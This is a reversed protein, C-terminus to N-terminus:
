FAQISALRQTERMNWFNTSLGPIIYLSHEKTMNSSSHRSAPLLSVRLHRITRDRVTRLTHLSQTHTHPTTVTYCKLCNVLFCTSIVSWVQLQVTPYILNLTSCAHMNLVQLCYKFAINPNPPSENCLVFNAYKTKWYFYRCKFIRVFILVM